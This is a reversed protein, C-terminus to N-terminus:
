ALVTNLEEDSPAGAKPAYLIGQDGEFPQRHDFGGHLIEAPIGNPFAECTPQRADPQFRTCFACLSIAQM